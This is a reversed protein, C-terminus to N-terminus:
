LHLIALTMMLACVFDSLYQCQQKSFGSVRDKREAELAEGMAGYWAIVIARGALMPVAHAMLVGSHHYAYRQAVSKDEVKAPLPVDVSFRRASETQSSQLCAEDSWMFMASELQTISMVDSKAGTLPDLMFVTGAAEYQASLAFSQQSNGYHMGERFATLRAGSAADPIQLPLFLLPSSPM